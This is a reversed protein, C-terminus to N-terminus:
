SHFQEYNVRIPSPKSNAIEWATGNTGQGWAVEVVQYGISLYYPWYYMAFADTSAYTGGDGTFLVITGLLTTGPDPPTYAFNFPLPDAVGATGVGPCNLTATFCSTTNPNVDFNRQAHLTSCNATTVASVNGLPLTQATVSSPLLFIAFIPGFLFPSVAGLKILM